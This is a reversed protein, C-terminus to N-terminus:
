QKDSNSVTKFLPKGYEPLASKIAWCDNVDYLKMASNIYYRSEEMTEVAGIIEYGYAEHDKRAIESIWLKEILYIQKM